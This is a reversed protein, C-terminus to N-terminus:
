RLEVSTEFTQPGSRIYRSKQQFGTDLDNGRWQTKEEGSRYIGLTVNGFSQTVAFTTETKLLSSREITLFYQGILRVDSATL